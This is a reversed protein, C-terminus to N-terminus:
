ASGYAASLVGRAVRLKGLFRNVAEFHSHESEGLKKLSLKLWPDQEPRPKRV